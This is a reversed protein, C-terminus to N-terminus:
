PKRGRIAVADKKFQKLATIVDSGFIGVSFVAATHTAEIGALFAKFEDDSLSAITSTIQDAIMKPIQSNM